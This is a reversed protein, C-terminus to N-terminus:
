THYAHLPHHPQHTLLYQTCDNHLKQQATLGFNSAARQQAVYNYIAAQDSTIPDSYCSYRGNINFLAIKFHTIIHIIPMKKAGNVCKDYAQM